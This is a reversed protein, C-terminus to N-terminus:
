DGLGNRGDSAIKRRLRQLRRQVDESSLARAAWELAADLDGDEWEFYKALEICPRPDAPQRSHWQQWLPVAEHRRGSRKLFEAFDIMAPLYAEDGGFTGLRYSAEAEALRGRARHWRALALSEAASVPLGDGIAGFRDLLHAVLVVMSLIDMANHYAVRRMESADGSRLYDLYMGPILAGPVDDETRAVRLVDAELANLACSPRSRRWLRRAALLLDFHPRHAWQGRRRLAVVTRSDLLPLDFARGNFTVLGARSELDDLLAWLMAPEELPDRLFYQRLTFGGAQFTGLGVLFAFTGAGGALGTTETDLFALQDLPITALAADGAVDSALTAPHRLCAALTSAGHPHDLAYHLDIRYCRGLPTDVERGPLAADFSSDAPQRRRTPVGTRLGLRQLRRRVDPSLSM